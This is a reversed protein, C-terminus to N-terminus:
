RGSTESPELLDINTDGQVAAVYIVEGTQSEVAMRSEFFRDQRRPEQRMALCGTPGAPWHSRCSARSGGPADFDPVDAADDGVSHLEAARVAQSLQPRGPAAGQRSRWIGGKDFRPACIRNDHFALTVWRRACAAVPLRRAPDDIAVASGGELDSCEASAKGDPTWTPLGPGISPM